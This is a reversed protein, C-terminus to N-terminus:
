KLAYVSRAPPSDLDFGGLANYKKFQPVFMEKTVMAIYETPTLGGNGSTTKSLDTASAGRLEAIPRKYEPMLCHEYAVNTIFRMWGTGAGAIALESNAM